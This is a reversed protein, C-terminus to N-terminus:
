VLTSSHMKWPKRMVVATNKLGAGEKTRYNQQYEDVLDGTDEGNMVSSNCHSATLGSLLTNTEVFM